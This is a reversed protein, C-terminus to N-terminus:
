CIRLCFNTTTTTNTESVSFLMSLFTLNQRNDYTEPTSTWLLQVESVSIYGAM